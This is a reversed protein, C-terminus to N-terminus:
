TAPEGPERRRVEMVKTNREVALVVTREEIGDQSVAVIPVIQRRDPLGVRASFSGDPQIRVPESSITLHSDPHTSGFIIMEADVSLPLRDMKGGAMGGSQGYRGVTPGGLPRHLRSELWRRLEEHNMDPDYGGSMAFIRESNEAVDM